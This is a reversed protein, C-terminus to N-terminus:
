EREKKGRVGEQSKKRSGPEKERRAIKERKGGNELDALVAM